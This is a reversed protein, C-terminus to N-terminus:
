RRAGEGDWAYVHSGSITGGGADGLSTMARDASFLTMIAGKGHTVVFASGDLSLTVGRPFEMARAELLQGERVDWLTMLNGWPNTVVAVGSAEHVAVSLSEGLMRGTVDRPEDMPRLPGGGRRFSVGGPSEKEPLGDRPASSVAFTGADSVALHGANWEGKTVVSRELLKGTALEVLCVSGHEETGAPGGGNTVLMVGGDLLVCDHPNQGFTPVDGLVRFTDRDRVSLVGRRTSLETEVCYLVSGDKAFQGHGYFHHGPSPDVTALARRGVLDVVAAGPGKKELVVAVGRRRPDVAFGHALFTMPVREVADKPDLADLDVLDLSFFARKTRADQLQMGGVM